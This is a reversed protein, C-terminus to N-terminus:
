QRCIVEVDLFRQNMRNKSKVRICLAEPHEQTILWPQLVTRIQDALEPESLQTSHGSPLTFQLRMIQNHYRSEADRPWFEVKLDSLLPWHQTLHHTLPDSEQPAESQWSSCGLLASLLWPLWLINKM